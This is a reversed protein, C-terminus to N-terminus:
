LVLELMEVAEVVLQTPELVEEQLEVVVELVVQRLVMLDTMQELVAVLLGDV